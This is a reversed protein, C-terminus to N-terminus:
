SCKSQNHAHSERVATGTLMGYLSHQPANTIRGTHCDWVPRIPRQFLGNRLALRYSKCIAAPRRRGSRQRRRGLHCPERRRYEKPTIGETRKFLRSFYPVDNFGSLFCVQQIPLDKRRLLNKAVSIRRANVAEILTKGTHRRFFTCVASRNM